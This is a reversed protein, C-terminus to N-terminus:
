DEREFHTQHIRDYDPPLGQLIIGEYQRDSPTEKPTGYNLRDCCRDQKYLFNDPDDDLRM